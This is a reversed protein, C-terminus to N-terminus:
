GLLRLRLRDGIVIDGQGLELVGLPSQQSVVVHQHLLRVVLVVGLPQQMLKRHFIVDDPLIPIRVSPHRQFKFGLALGGGLPLRGLRPHRNMPNLIDGAPIGRFGICRVRARPSESRSSPPKRQKKDPDYEADQNPIEACRNHM